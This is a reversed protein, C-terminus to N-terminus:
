EGAIPNGTLILTKVESMSRIPKVMEDTLRCESLNLTELTDLMVIMEVLEDTMAVGSIDLSKLERYKKLAMVGQATLFTKRLSLTDLKPRTNENEALKELFAGTVMMGNVTLRKLKPLNQISLLGADFLTMNRSLVLLVLKSQWAATEMMKAFADPSIMADEITLGTLNPLQAVYELVKDNIGFGGIKLDVLQTMGAVLAFDEPTLRSCDRVDLASITRSHALTELIERGVNMEILAVNRLNNKALFAEAAHDTVNACRRLTLRKLEPLATLIAAVDDDQVVTDQLFLEELQTQGAIKTLTERSIASGAVRLKKLGRISLAANLVEDSVSSRAQALDIGVITGEANRDISGFANEVAEIVEQTIAQSVVATQPPTPANAQEINPTCGSLVFLCLGMFQLIIKRV